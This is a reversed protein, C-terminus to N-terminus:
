GGALVERAARAGSQLAGTVTATEGETDTAEGAFFLTSCLSEALAARAASAGVSVYSYAGRAFPDQQWDHYYSAELAQAVHYREDFMSQLAGLAHAVIDAPAVSASLRAARPGGAWAVLLPARVPLQTWFTQFDESPAHFFAANGYRGDDLEEWFASSFRLMLKIVPGAVLGELASHKENLAPSFRVAGPADAPQQMVGVPLTIIARRASARFPKGIFTGEVEVLGESWHVSRVITQLQVRVAASRLAAALIALLADYGGQPRSQPADDSMMDATWEAVIARASARSTDAADFGEAMMKAYRRAEPSLERSQELFADFSLDQRELESSARLACRVEHFFDNRATLEGNRLRFHTDTSEIATSGGRRLIAMTPLAHGHIYEAGYEVPVALEPVHRTWIRGGIRDRAELLLVRRDSHALEAAAALGAAGAGIILIDATTDTM